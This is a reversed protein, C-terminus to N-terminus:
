SDTVPGQRGGHTGDQPEGVAEWHEQRPGPHGRGGQRDLLGELLGGPTGAGALHGAPRGLAGGNGIGAAEGGSVGEVGHHGRHRRGAEERRQCSGEGEQGEQHSEGPNGQTHVVGAVHQGPRGQSAQGPPHEEKELPSSPDDWGRSPGVAGDGMPIVTPATTKWAPNLRRPPPPPSGKAPQSTGGARLFGGGAPAPDPPRGPLGCGALAGHFAAPPHALDLDRALGQPLGSRSLPLVSAPVRTATGGTGRSGVPPGGDGLACSSLIGPRFVVAALAFVSPALLFEGLYGPLTIRRRIIAWRLHRALFDGVTPTGVVNDVVERALVLEGGLAHVEQGCVQDEALFAGLFGFGGIAELDARRLMMSKGVVCVGGWLRHVAATGGLVYTNLHLTELAAGLSGGGVGRFPSSVLRVGPRALEGVLGELHTPRVRVNSDSILIVQGRARDFLNALNNVKPNFGVERDSVVLHARVGPFASMLRRVVPVASDDWDRVGFLLEYRPWTQHFFSRLNEELGPDAGKLPKLVSVLPRDGTPPDLPKALHSLEVVTMVTLATLGIGALVLFGM